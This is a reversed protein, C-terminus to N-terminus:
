NIRQNYLSRNSKKKKFDFLEVNHSTKGMCMVYETESKNKFILNIINGNTRTKTSSIDIIMSKSGNINFYPRGNVKIGYFYNTKTKSENSTIHVFLDKTSSVTLSIYRYAKDGIKIIDNLWQTKTINKINIDITYNDTISKENTTDVDTEISNKIIILFVILKIEIKIFYFKLINIKQKM